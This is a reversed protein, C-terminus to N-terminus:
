RSDVGFQAVVSMSARAPSRRSSHESPSESMSLSSASASASLSAEHSAQASRSISSASAAPPRSLTETITASTTARCSGPAAQVHAGQKSFHDPRERHARPRHARPRSIRGSIHWNQEFQTRIAKAMLPSVLRMVGRPQASLQAELRTQGDVGTLRIADDFNVIRSQARFTVQTPRRFEVIELSVSGARAYTGRFRTGLGVPGPTLNEVTQAGPLWKPENTADALVDFVTEIPAHITAEARAEIM